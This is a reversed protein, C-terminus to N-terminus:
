CCTGITYFPGRTGEVIKRTNTCKDLMLCTIYYYYYYYYYYLFFFFIFFSIFFFLLLLLPVLLLLFSLLFKITTACLRSRLQCTLTGM